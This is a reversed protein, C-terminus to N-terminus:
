PLPRDAQALAGEVASREVTTLANFPLGLAKEWCRHAEAADGRHSAAQGAGWWAEPFKPELALLRGYVEGARDWDQKKLYLAGLNDLIVKGEPDWDAAETCVAEARNLDGQEQLLFGLNGYLARTRYGAALLGELLAVAEDTRGEKWLVLARYTELLRRGPERLPKGKRGHALAGDLLTRAEDNRGNKLALYAYSATVEVELRGAAEAKAFAALTAAEDGRSFARHAAVVYLGSRNWWLYWALLGFCLVSFFLIM